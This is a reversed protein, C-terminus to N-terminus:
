RPVDVNVKQHCEFLKEEVLSDESGGSSGQMPLRAASLLRGQGFDPGKISPTQRSSRSDSM